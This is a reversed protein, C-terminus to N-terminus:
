RSKAESEGDAFVLRVPGEGPAIRVPRKGSQSLLLRGQHRYEAGEVRGNRLRARLLIGGEVPVDYLEVDGWSSPLAPFLRIVGDVSEVSMAFPILLFSSYGTLFYPTIGETKGPEREVRAEYVLIDDPDASRTFLTARDLATDGFGLCAETLAFWNSIFTIMGRGQQNREWALDLSRRAKDRDIAAIRELLPFGLYMFARIGFYGGGSRQQPDDLYELYVSESEPVHLRDAVKQWREALDADRGLRRAYRCATQLQWKAALVADLVSKEMINESISLLPPFFYFQRSEDWKALDCYFEAIGRLVPYTVRDTRSVDPFYRDYLHFAASAFGDLHRQLDWHATTPYTVNFGETTVEHGFALAKPNYANLYTHKGKDQKRYVLDVPGTRPFLIRVNDHLAAPRYMWDLMRRARERDGISAFAWVGWTGGHGYTFPHMHWDSDPISFMEEGPLFHSSGATAYLTYLSRYFWKAIEGPPLILSAVSRWQREWETKQRDVGGDRPLPRSVSRRAQTQYDAGDFHTTVAYRLVITEGPKLMFWGKGQQLRLSKSASLAWSSRTFQDAADCRGQLLRPSVPRIDFGETPLTVTWRSATNMRSQLKIVLLHPDAKAFYITSAFGVTASIQLETTLIASRINLEQHYRIPQDTGPPPTELALLPGPLSVRRVDDAWLDAFWLHTFGLGRCDAWGGMEASGMLMGPAEPALRFRHFNCTQMPMERRILASGALSEGGGALLPIIWTLLVTPKRIWM